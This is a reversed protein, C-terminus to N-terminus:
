KPAWDDSMESQLTQDRTSIAAGPGTNTTKPAFLGTYDNRISSDIIEQQTQYDYINLLKFQKTQAIKSVTKRKSKRYDCWERWASFNIRQDTVISPDFKPKAIAVQKPPGPNNEGGKGWGFYKAMGENVMFSIDGHRKNRADLENSVADSLRITRVKSM